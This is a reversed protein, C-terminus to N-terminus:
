SGNGFEKEFEFYTWCVACVKQKETVWVPSDCDCPECFAWDWDKHHELVYDYIASQGGEDYLDTLIHSMENKWSPILIHVETM